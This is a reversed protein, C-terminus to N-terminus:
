APGLDLRWGHGRRSETFGVARYLANAPEMDGTDVSATMAGLERVRRLGDLLLTGALGRRLHDPHTCVPEVIGHRNEEDLTVGVHAAFSGDPAEAVLNLEHRFSPSGSAFREYEAPTHSTRGFAANLLAAMRAADATLTADSTTRMRYGEAAGAEAPRTWADFRLRHMWVGDDLRDFGRAALLEIRAPDDDWVTTELSRRGATAIALRAEAWDLMSPELHRFAPDLEFFAEGRGEGHVVGVLAGAATEWLGIGEAIWSPVRGDENHFRKGDWRRIDWNWGPSTTAFTRVLLGRIAWWDTEDNRYPRAPMPQQAPATSM